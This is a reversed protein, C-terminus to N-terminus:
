REARTVNRCAPGARAVLGKLVAWRSGIRCWHGKRSKAIEAQVARANIGYKDREDTSADGCEDNAKNRHWGGQPRGNKECARDSKEDQRESQGIGAEVSEGPKDYGDM